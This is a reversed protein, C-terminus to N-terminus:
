ASEEGPLNQLLVFSSRVEGDSEHEFRVPM